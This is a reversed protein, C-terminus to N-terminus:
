EFPNIIETWDDQLFQNLLDRTIGIEKNPNELSKEIMTNYRNEAIRNLLDNDIDGGNHYREAFDEYLTTDDDDEKAQEYAAFIESALDNEIIQKCIKEPTLQKKIERELKKPPTNKIQQATMGKLINQRAQNIAKQYAKSADFMNKYQGKKDGITYQTGAKLAKAKLPNLNQRNRSIQPIGHIEGTAKDIQGHAYGLNINMEKMASKGFVSQAKNILNQTTTHQFGLNRVANEIQKNYQRIISDASKEAPNLKMAM